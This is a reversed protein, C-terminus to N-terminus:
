LTEVVKDENASICSEITMGSVQLEFHIVRRISRGITPPFVFFAFMACGDTHDTDGVLLGSLLLVSVAVPSYSMMNQHDFICVSSRLTEKM